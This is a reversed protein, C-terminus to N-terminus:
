FKYMCVSLPKLNKRQQNYISHIKSFIPLNGSLKNFFTFSTSNTRTLYDKLQLKRNMITM